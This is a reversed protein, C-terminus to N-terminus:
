NSHSKINTLGIHVQSYAQRPHSTKIVCEVLTTQRHQLILTEPNAGLLTKTKKQKNNKLGITKRSLFEFCQAYM